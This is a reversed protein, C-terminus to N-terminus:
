IQFKSLLVGSLAGLFVRSILFIISFFIRQRKKGELHAWIHQTNKPRSKILIGFNIDRTAVKSLVEPLAMAAVVVATVLVAQLTAM